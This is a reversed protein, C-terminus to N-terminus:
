VMFRTERMASPMPATATRTTMKEVKKMTTRDKSTALAQESLPDLAVEDPRVVVDAGAMEGVEKVENYDRAFRGSHIPPPPSLRFQAGDRLGFPTVQGWGPLLAPACDTWWVPLTPM